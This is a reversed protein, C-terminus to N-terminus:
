RFDGQASLDHAEYIASITGGRLRQSCSASTPCRLAACAMGRRHCRVRSITIIFWVCSSSTFNPLIAAKASCSGVL